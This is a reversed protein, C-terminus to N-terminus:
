PSNLRVHYLEDNISTVRRVDDIRWKIVRIEWAGSYFDTEFEINLRLLDDISLNEKNLPTFCQIKSEDSGTGLRSGNFIFVCIELGKQIIAWIKGNPGSAVRCLEYNDLLVNDWSLNSRFASVIAHDLKEGLVPPNNNSKWVVCDAEKHIEQGGPFLGVIYYQNTAYYIGPTQYASNFYYPLIMSLIMSVKSKNILNTKPNAKKASEKIYNVVNLYDPNDWYTILLTRKENTHFGMRYVNSANKINKSTNISVLQLFPAQYKTITLNSM